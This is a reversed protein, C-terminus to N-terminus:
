VRFGKAHTSHRLLFEAGIGGATFHQNTFAFVCESKSPVRLNSSVVRMSDAEVRLVHSSNAEYDLPKATSIVGTTENLEFEGSPFFLFPSLTLIENDSKGVQTRAGCPLSTCEGGQNGEIISYVITQNVAAAMITGVATGVAAEESM